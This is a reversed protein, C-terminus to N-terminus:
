RERALVHYGALLIVAIHTEPFYTMVVKTISYMTLAAIAAFSVDIGGAALVIMVGLAFLGLTTCARVIDFLVALQFFAPNILAVTVVVLLILVFTFLSPNKKLLAGLSAAASRPPLAPSTDTHANQRTLTSADM